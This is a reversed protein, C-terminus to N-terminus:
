DLTKSSATYGVQKFSRTDSFLYHKTNDVLGPLLRCHRISLGWQIDLKDRAWFPRPLQANYCSIITRDSPDNTEHDKRPWGQRFLWM